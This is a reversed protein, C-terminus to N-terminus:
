RSNNLFDNFPKILRVSDNVIHLCEDSLLEKDSIMRVVLYSKMKLLEIYRHDKPYGKPATKLKEGDLSGFTASFEKSNIIKLLKDGNEDINERIASLWDSPPMYAGGAIMSNNGPEVHFYYGAYRDGNQRGGRVMFAGLHTKYPSKDNTFRIDRNIRYVCSSVELGKMVPEINIINGLIKEVFAEFNSKAKLYVPKNSLFWERNNNKKLAKLFDLTDKSIREM